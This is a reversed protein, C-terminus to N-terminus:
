ARGEKEAVARIAADMAMLYDDSPAKDDEQGPRYTRWVEDRMPKPVMYWHRRCMLMKPPVEVSCGAAHCTHVSM